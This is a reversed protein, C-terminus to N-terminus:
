RVNTLKIGLSLLTNETWVQFRFGRANCYKEAAEWKSRNKAYTMSEQLFRVRSKGRKSKPQITQAEPKIEVCVTEGNKFRIVLDVFYRHVRNDTACRYPIILSESTWWVIDSNKECWRFAQREWYSRYVVNTHDGRYKPINEIKYKGKYYQPM